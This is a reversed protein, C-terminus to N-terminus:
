KYIDQLIKSAIAKMGEYRPHASDLLYDKVSIESLKVLKLQYKVSLSAIVDNMTKAQTENYYKSEPLDCLIIEVNPYLKYINDIMQSYALTFTSTKAYLHDNSGMYIIIVDPSVNQKSCSSVREINKSGSKDDSDVLSGSYSNNSLLTGGLSNVVLSSWTMNVNNIDAVPYPYFTKYGVPINDEFTSISDGIISILKGTYKDTGILYKAKITTDKELGFLDHDWGNFRYGSYSLPTPAIIHEGKEIYQEEILENEKGVFTIKILNVKCAEEANSLYVGKSDAYIISQYKEKSSKGIATIKAYGTSHVSISSWESISVVSSNSSSWNFDQVSVNIPLKPQYCYSLYNIATFEGKIDEDLELKTDREKKTVKAYLTLDGTSNMPIKDIRSNLRKDLCWCIFYSDDNTLKPLECETGVKYNAPSLNLVKDDLMYVIDAYEKHYIPHIEIFDKIVTYDEDWGALVYNDKELTPPTAPSLYPVQEVKCVNGDFDYFKVTFNLKNRILYIDTDEKIHELPKDWAFSYGHEKSVKPAVVTEDYECEMKRILNNGDYFKVTYKNKTWSGNVILDSTINTLEQDWGNFTYGEKYTDIGKADQGELVYEYDLVLGDDYYAIEYEPTKVEGCSSFLLCVFSIVFLLYYRLKM